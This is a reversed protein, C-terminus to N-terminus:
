VLAEVPDLQEAAKLLARKVATKALQVKYGNDSLPTASAVAAKGAREATKENVPHGVIAEAASESVWPVPAVHGMVVRAQRVIGGELGLTTAAAALPWDLGTLELVEYAASQQSASAPLWVHSVLQGPKLVTFNQRETGPTRFFYEVPVFEEADPEPGIVRVKAGWAILSPAFRSASVFKAPGRNGFVAHYRNDGTEALSEGNQMALLGYGNRYYWCNPHLCLDGGVTGNQQIQIARIGDVVDALSRYDATLPSGVLDELTTLSGIMVGDGVPIVGQMSKIEKINVVRKPSYVDRKMLTILDTGGALIAAAGDHDSLLELAEAETTPQAYEFPRM